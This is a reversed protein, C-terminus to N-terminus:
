MVPLKATSNVVPTLWALRFQIYTCLATPRIKVGM